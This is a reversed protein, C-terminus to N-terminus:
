LVSLWDKERSFLSELGSSSDSSRVHRSVERLLDLTDELLGLEPALDRHLNDQLVSDHPNPMAQSGIEESRQILGGTRQETSSTFAAVFVGAGPSASDGGINAVAGLAMSSATGVREIRVADAVVKGNALNSLSVTLSNGTITVTRVRFWNTGDATYGASAVRQNHVSTGFNQSGATISVPANTANLGDGTWSMYIRYQGPPLSTFTWRSVATASTAKSAVHVDGERGRTGLQWIGTRTNGAAGNDITRTTGAGTTTTGVTGQLRLDYTGENADGNTFSINGSFTGAATANLRLTFTASQGALLTTTTLNSVQTFGTPIASTISNISLDATGVNRVTVVRTVATGIPTNGFDITGGDAINTTGVLVSIEPSPAAPTVGGTITYQGLNGYASNGFTGSGRVVLFYSGAALNTSLSAGFSDGPDSVSVVTGASNRIELAGDLNNGFQAVNMQFNVGGGGTSFQFVDVDTRSGILGGFNVSTGNVSLTSPTTFTNSYDDARLGFNNTGNALISVDDQFVGSGQNTNGNHWTTRNASYGVGMIPAWASNGANYEAQLQGNVWTSQHLLGFLHGAEHSTAEAVYRANGNGLADEFVYGTNSASNTFGGVYAVGGASQGFWDSYNGGIALRVANGNTIAGPDITTVDINFPSYDEAVRAWIERITSIESDSFTTADGDRDFVRTTCNSYSGWSAEFHGNFDLYLKVRAGSNSSLQPLASIPSAASTGGSGTTGSQAIDAPFLSELDQGSCIPCSCAGGHSLTLPLNDGASLSSTMALRPELIELRPLYKTEDAPSIARRARLM